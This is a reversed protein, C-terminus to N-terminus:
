HFPFTESTNKLYREVFEHLQFHNDCKRKLMQSRFLDSRMSKKKLKKDRVIKCYPFSYIKNELMREAVNVGSFRYFTNGNHRFLFELCFYKISSLCPNANFNFQM